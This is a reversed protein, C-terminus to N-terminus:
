GEPPSVGNSQGPSITGPAWGRGGTSQGILGQVGERFRDLGRPFTLEIMKMMVDFQEGIVLNSAAEAHKALDDADNVNAGTAAALILGAAEPFKEVLTMAMNADTLNGTLLMRIEPFTLLVKAIAKSSLGNVALQEGRIEVTGKAAAPAIDILSVM